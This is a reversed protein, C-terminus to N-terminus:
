LNVYGYVYLITYYRVIYPQKINNRFASEMGVGAEAEWEPQQETENLRSKRGPNFCAFTSIYVKFLMM